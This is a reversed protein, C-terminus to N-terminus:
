DVFGTVGAECSGFGEEPRLPCGCRLPVCIQTSVCVCCRCIFIVLDATTTCVKLGLVRSASAPPGRIEFGAQDVCFGQHQTYLHTASIGDSIDM